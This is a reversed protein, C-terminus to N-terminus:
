LGEYPNGLNGESEKTSSGKLTPPTQEECSSVNARWPSAHAHCSLHNATHPPYALTLHFHHTKMTAEYMDTKRRKM